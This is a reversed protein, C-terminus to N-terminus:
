RQYRVPWTMLPPVGLPEGSVTLPRVGPLECAKRATAMSLAPLSDSKEAKRFTEVLPTGDVKLNPAL